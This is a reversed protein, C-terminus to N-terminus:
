VTGGFYWLFSGYVSLGYTILKGHYHTSYIRGDWVYDAENKQGGFTFFIDKFLNSYRLSLPTAKALDESPTFDLEEVTAFMRAADPRSYNIYGFPALPLYSLLMPAFSNEDNRYDDYPLVAVTKNHIPVSDLEVLKNMSSPYVFKATTGCGTLISMIVVLFCLKVLKM